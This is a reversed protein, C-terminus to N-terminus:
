RKKKGVVKTFGEEDVEPPPKEKPVKVLEPAEGMETDEEIGDWEEEDSDWDTEEEDEGGEVFRMRVEGGGSRQRERWRAYMEDVMEFDGQATLKRLGVIRAAIEEASGDELNADFEDNM